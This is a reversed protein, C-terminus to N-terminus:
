WGAVPHHGTAAPAASGSWLALDCSQVFHNHHPRRFCREVSGCNEASLWTRAVLCPRLRDSARLRLFCAFGRLQGLAAAVCFHRTHGIPHTIMKGNCRIASLKSQLSFSRSVAM